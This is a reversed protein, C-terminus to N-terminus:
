PKTLKSGWIDSIRLRGELHGITVVTRLAPQVLGTREKHFTSVLPVLFLTELGGEMLSEVLKSM